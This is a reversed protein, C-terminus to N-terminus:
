RPLMDPLRERVATLEAETLFAYGAAQGHDVVVHFRGVQQARLARNLATLFAGDLWDGNGASSFAYRQGDLTFAGPYPGGRGYAPFSDEVDTLAFHGRGAREFQRLLDAYAGDMEAGEWDFYVVRRPFCRYLDGPGQAYELRRARDLSAAIEEETLGELLGIARFTSVTGGVDLDHTQASGPPLFNDPPPLLDDPDYADM